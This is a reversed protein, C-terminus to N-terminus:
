ELIKKIFTEHILGKNSSMGKQQKKVKKLQMRIHGQTSDIQLSKEYYKIAKKYQVNLDCYNGCQNLAEVYTPNINIAKEIEVIAKGRQGSEGLFIGKDLYAKANQPNMSIVSDYMAIDREFKQELGRQSAAKSAGFSIHGNWRFEPGRDVTFLRIIYYNSYILILIIFISIVKNPNFSVKKAMKFFVAIVALWILLFFLYFIDGLGYGFSLIGMFCLVIVLVCFLMSFMVSLKVVKKM